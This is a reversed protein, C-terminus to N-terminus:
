SKQSIEALAQGAESGIIEMARNNYHGEAFPNIYQQNLSLAACVETLMAFDSDIEVAKKQARMIAECAEHKIFYGVKIIGFRDIGLFEKVQNKYEILRELYEDETTDILADSEGQLWVYYVHQVDYEERAKAIGAKGKRRLNHSLQTGYLWEAITTAGRAAHIAVVQRGTKEHYARCFAPALGGHGKSAALCCIGSHMQEGVPHQLPIFSDEYFRFEVAGEVPDNPEPLSETQGQMNSQGGFIIVDAPIKSM